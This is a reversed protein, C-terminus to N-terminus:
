WVRSDWEAKDSTEGVDGEHNQHHQSHGHEGCGHHEGGNGGAGVGGGGSHEIDAADLAGHGLEAHGLHHHDAAGMGHPDLGGDEIGEADLGVGGGLNSVGVGVEMGAQGLHNEDGSMVELGLDDAGHLGDDGMDMGDLGVSDLGDPVLDTPSGGDGVGNHGLDQHHHHHHNQHHHQQQHPDHHDHGSIDAYVRKRHDGIGGGIDVIGSNIVDVIGVAGRVSGGGGAAGRGGRVGGALLVDKAPPRYGIMGPIKHEACLLSRVGDYSYWPRKLCGEVQCKRSVVDMM